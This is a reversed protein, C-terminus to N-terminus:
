EGIDAQIQKEFWHDAYPNDNYRAIERYGRRLYFARAEVLSRNTDLRIAAAGIDRALAELRDMIAGAVGRGRASPDTWVRKVEATATDLLRVMGCGVAAGGLRAVIARVADDAPVGAYAASGPDFGTDFRQALEAYYRGVCHRLDPDDAPVEVLDLRDAADSM